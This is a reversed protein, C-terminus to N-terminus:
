NTNRTNWVDEEIVCGGVYDVVRFREILTYTGNQANLVAISVESDMDCELLDKILDKVTM